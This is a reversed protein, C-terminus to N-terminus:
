YIRGDRRLLSGRQPQQRQNSQSGRQTSTSSAYHEARRDLTENMGQLTRESAAEAVQSHRIRRGWIAQGAVCRVLTWGELNANCGAWTYQQGDVLNDQQQYQQQQQRQYQQQHHQQQDQQQQYQQQNYQPVEARPTVPQFHPLRERLGHLAGMTGRIVGNTPTNIRGGYSSAQGDVGRAPRPMQRGFAGHRSPNREYREAFEQRQAMMAAPAMVLGLAAILNTMQTTHMAMTEKNVLHWWGVLGKVDRLKKQEM